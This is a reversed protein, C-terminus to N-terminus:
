AVDTVAPQAQYWAVLAAHDILIRKGVRRAPIEGSNVRQRIDYESLSTMLAADRVSLSVPTSHPSPAM